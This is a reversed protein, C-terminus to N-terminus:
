ITCKVIIVITQWVTTQINRSVNCNVPKHTLIQEAIPLNQIKTAFFHSLFFRFKTWQVCITKLMFHNLLSISFFAVALFRSFLFHFVFNHVCQCFFFWFNSITCLTLAHFNQILPFIVPLFREFLLCWKIWRCLYCQEAFACKEPLIIIIWSDISWGKCCWSSIKCIKRAFIM